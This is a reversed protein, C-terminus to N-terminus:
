TGTVLSGRLGKVFDMLTQIAERTDADLLGEQEQARAESIIGAIGGLFNKRSQRRQQEAVFQQEPAGSVLGALQQQAGLQLQGRAITKAQLGAAQLRGQQARAVTTGATGGRRASAGFSQQLRNIEQGIQVDTARTAATPQGAAQQQLNGILQSRAQLGQQTASEFGTQGGGLLSSLLNGGVQGLITQIIPSALLSTGGTAPAAAISGATLALEPLFNGIGQGRIGKSADVFGPLSKNVKFAGGFGM